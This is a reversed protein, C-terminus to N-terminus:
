AILLNRSINIGSKSSLFIGGKILEKTIESKGKVGILRMIKIIM